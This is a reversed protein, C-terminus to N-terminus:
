CRACPLEGKIAVPIGAVIRVVAEARQALLVCLRGAAERFVRDALNDPIVGSGVECCLVLERKCLTELLAESGEPRARVIEELGYLVPAASDIRCSMEDDNYGVSRAFARKGAGSAGLVLIM